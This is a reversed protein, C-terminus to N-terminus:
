SIQSVFRMGHPRRGASRASPVSNAVTEYIQSFVFVFGHEFCHNDRPESAEDAGAQAKQRSFKKM